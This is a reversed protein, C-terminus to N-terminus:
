YVCKQYQPCINTSKIKYHELLDQLLLLNVNMIHEILKFQVNLLHESDQLWLNM